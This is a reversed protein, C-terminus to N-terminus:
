LFIIFLSDFNASKLFSIWKLKNSFNFHLKKVYLILIECIKLFYGLYLIKYVLSLIVITKKFKTAKKQMVSDLGSTFTKFKILKKLIRM